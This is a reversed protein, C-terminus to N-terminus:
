NASSELWRCLLYLDTRCFLRRSRLDEKCIQIIFWWVIAVMCIFFCIINCFLLFVLSTVLRSSCYVGAVITKSLLVHMLHWIIIEVECTYFQARLREEWNTRGRGGKDSDIAIWHNWHEVRSMTTMKLKKKKDRWM